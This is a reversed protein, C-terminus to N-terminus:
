IATVVSATTGELVHQHTAVQLAETMTRKLRDPAIIDIKDGWTFLHWALELMGGSRFRVVISGDKQPELTQIPHFRWNRADEAGHPLVRLVVDELGDQYIGFSRSAYSSLSFSESPCAPIDTLEVDVIRDLRWNRPEGGVDLEAAVLYNMREFLIGHPCVVRRRGPSSGGEYRFSIALMAMIGHRIAALAEPNDAPRPGVRVVSMEARSLAEVDPTLRRLVNGKVASRIKRDLSELTAARSAHGSKRLAASATALEVLEETTPAQFFGDLGGPIRYRKIAGEQLTEMQPFLLEMADRMREATRRAASIRAAMEDLTLGEASAALHRALELLTGAKDHRM